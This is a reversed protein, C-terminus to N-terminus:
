GATHTNSPAINLEFVRQDKAANFGQYEYFQHAETRRVNCRVRVRNRNQVRIWDICARVLGTAVGRRRASAAVVLALIEADPESLLRDSVSVHALGCLANSGDAVFVAQRPEALVYSLRSRLDDVTIPYGLESLLPCLQEADALTARRICHSRM